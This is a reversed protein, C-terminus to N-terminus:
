KYGPQPGALSAPPAGAKAHPCAPSPQIVKIRATITLITEAGPAEGTGPLLVYGTDGTMCKDPYLMVKDNTKFGKHSCFQLVRITNGKNNEVQIISATLFKGCLVPNPFYATVEAEFSDPLNAAQCCLLKNLPQTYFRQGFTVTNLSLTLLIFCVHKM